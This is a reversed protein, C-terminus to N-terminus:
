GVPSVETWEFYLDAVEHPRYAAHYRLEDNWLIKPPKPHRPDNEYDELDFQTHWLGMPSLRKVYITLDLKRGIGELVERLCIGEIITPTTPFVRRRDDLQAELLPLNLTQLYPLNPVPDPRFDDVPLPPLNGLDKALMTALSSKGANM